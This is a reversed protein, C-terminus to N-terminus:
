ALLIVLVVLLAQQLFVQDAVALDVTVGQQKFLLQEEEAVAGQQHLLM